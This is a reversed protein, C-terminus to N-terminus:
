RGWCADVGLSGSVTKQGLHNMSFAGCEDGDMRGGTAPTAWVTYTTEDLTVVNAPSRTSINYSATGERPASTVPLVVDDWDDSDAEDKDFVKDYRNAETFNRELFQVDELIAAKAEARHSRAIYQVYSPYAIASLIGVIAVAIMLEILTFGNRISPKAPRKSNM